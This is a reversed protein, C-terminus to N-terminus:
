YLHQVLDFKPHIRSLACLVFNEMLSKKIKQATHPVGSLIIKFLSETDNRKGGQKRM